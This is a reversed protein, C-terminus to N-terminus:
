EANACALDRFLREYGTFHGCAVAASIFAGLLGPLLISQGALVLGPIRTFPPVPMNDASHMVGYISGSSGEVWDRMSYESCSDVVRFDNLEPIHRAILGALRNQMEDKWGPYWAPRGGKKGPGSSELGQAEEPSLVSTRAVAFVPYRGDVPTGASVHLWAHRADTSSFLNEIDDSMCLLVSRGDLFDRSTSGFLMFFRSTEELTRLHRAMAPRLSGQPLLEPLRSPHGTYVCGECAFTGKDTLVEAVGSKSANLGTVKHGTRVDVGARSLALEFARSLAAGGNEIGCVGEQMSHTVLAFEEFLCRGPPTGYYISRASLLSRLRAPLDASEFRAALKGGSPMMLSQASMRRPDIFPSHRYASEIDSLFRRIFGAHEPWRSALTKTTKGTGQPLPVDEYGTDSVFRFLESCDQRYPKFSLERGLGCFNLYRRLIGGPGLAGAHHFGTDFHLGGRSFGRLLPAVERGAELLTVKHGYRALILASCVGSAGSGIVVTQM